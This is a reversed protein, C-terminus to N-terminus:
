YRHGYGRGNEMREIRMSNHDLERNLWSRTDYNLTGSNRATEFQHRIHRLHDHLIDAQRVTLMGSRVGHDIRHWQHRIREDIRGRQAFAINTSLMAMCLVLLVPVIRSKRMTQEETQIFEMFFSVVRRSDAAFSGSVSWPGFCQASQWGACGCSADVAQLIM